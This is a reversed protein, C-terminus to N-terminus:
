NRAFRRRQRLLPTLSILFVRPSSRHDRQLFDRAHTDRKEARASPLEGSVRRQNEKCAPSPSSSAGRSLPSIAFRSPRSLSLSRTFFFPFFHCSSFSHSSLALLLTLPVVPTMQPLPPDSPMESARPSSLITPPRVATARAIRENAIGKGVHKGASSKKGSTIVFYYPASLVRFEREATWDLRLPFALALGLPGSLSSRSHRLPPAALPRHDLSAGICGAIRCSEQDSQSALRCASAFEFLGSWSRCLLMWRRGRSTESRGGAKGCHGWASTRKM